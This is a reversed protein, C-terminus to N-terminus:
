TDFRVLFNVPLDPMSKVPKALKAVAVMDMNEDYLGITTIYPALYSGTLDVSSSYEYESFQPKQYKDSQRWKIGGKDSITYECNILEYDMLKSVSFGYTNNPEISLTQEVGFQDYYNVFGGADDGAIIEYVIASNTVYISGTEVNMEIYSTPNTSVNFEDENITLLIENEYITTTSKYTLDYDDFFNYRSGPESGSVIDKTVTILGHSYFVNGITERLINSYGEIIGTFSILNDNIVARFNTFENTQGVLTITSNNLNIDTFNLTIIQGITDYFSFEGTEVNLSILNFKNTKSRLNGYGDDEVREGITNSTISVSLPKIREGFNKQPISIVRAATNLYRQSDTTNYSESIPLIDGYSTLVNHPDRYYMSYIQHYLGNEFLENTSLSNTSGTHNYALLSTYTDETVSFTKYVKFPRLNIDSKPIHKLM